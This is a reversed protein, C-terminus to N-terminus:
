PINVFEGECGDIVKFVELGVGTVNGYRGILPQLTLTTSSGVRKASSSDEGELRIIIRCRHMSCDLWVPFVQKALRQIKEIDSGSLEVVEDLIKKLESALANQSGKFGKKLEFRPDYQSLAAVLADRASKL